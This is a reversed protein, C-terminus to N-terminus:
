IHGRENRFSHPVLCSAVVAGCIGSFATRVASSQLRPRNAYESRAFWWGVEFRPLCNGFLLRRFMLFNNQVQKRMPPNGVLRCWYGGEVLLYSPLPIGKGELQQRFALEEGKPPSHSTSHIRYLCPRGVGHRTTGPPCVSTPSGVLSKQRSIKGARRTRIRVRFVPPSFPLISSLFTRFNILM